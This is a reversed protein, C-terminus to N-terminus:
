LTDFESLNARVIVSYLLQLPFTESQLARACLHCVCSAFPDIFKFARKYLMMKVHFIFLNITYVIACLLICRLQSLAYLKEFYELIIRKLQPITRYFIHLQGANGQGILVPFM